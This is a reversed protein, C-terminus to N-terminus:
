SKRYFSCCFIIGIISGAANALLDTMTDWYDISVNEFPGAESELGLLGQGDELFLTGGFEVFEGVLAIGISALFVILLFYKLFGKEYLRVRSKLASYILIAIAISGIVHTYIDWNVNFFQMSFFGFRGLEHLSMAVNIILYSFLNLNLKEYYFFFLSSLTIFLISDFVYFREGLSLSYIVVFSFFLAFIGYIMKAYKDKM